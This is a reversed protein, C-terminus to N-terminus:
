AQKRCIKAIVECLALPSFPKSCIPRGRFRAEVTSKGYGTTLVFPINADVLQDALPYSTENRLNIDLVVVDPHAEQAAIFRQAEELTAGVGLVNAGADELVESLTVALLYNDEVIYVRCGSLAAHMEVDGRHQIAM